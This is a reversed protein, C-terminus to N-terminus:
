FVDPADIRSRRVPAKDLVAWLEALTEVVDTLDAEPLCYPLRLFREFSGNLGFRPGEALMLNRHRAADVLPRASHGPLAAWLSLGGEPRRFRWDPLRDHLATALASERAKLEARREALPTQDGLLLHASALQDMVAVGLDMSARAKIIGERLQDTARVWGVRLGGWWSKSMSGLRIVNPGAGPPPPPRDFWLERQTDDFAVVTGVAEAEAIIRGEDEASLVHGTPNQHAGILYTLRPRVRRLTRIMTEVDWGDEGLAVPVPRLGARLIAEMAHPYTPHDIIVSDGPRGLARLVLSWGNQAGATIVFQQSDSALGVLSMREAAAARLALLGVPDYGHGPLLLPLTEIAKAFAQHVPAGAPLVATAMNIVGPTADLHFLGEPTAGRQVPLATYTGSGVRSVLFGEDRLWDMAATVTIRSVGLAQALSREGPLRADIPLRGDLILSKLGKALRRYAVTDSGVDGLGALHRSLAYLTVPASM